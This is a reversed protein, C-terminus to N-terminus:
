RDMIPKGIQNSESGSGGEGRRVREPVHSKAAKSGARSEHRATSRPTGAPLRGPPGRSREASVQVSVTPVLGIHASYARTLEGFALDLVMRSIGASHRRDEEDREYQIRDVLADHM